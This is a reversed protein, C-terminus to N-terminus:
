RNLLSIVEHGNTNRLRQLTGSDHNYGYRCYQWATYLERTWQKGHEAYWQVLAKKAEEPVPRGDVTEPLADVKAQFKATALYRATLIADHRDNTFYGPEKSGRPRIEIEGAKHTATYGYSAVLAKTETLSYTIM